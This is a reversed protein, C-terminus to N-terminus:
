YEVNEQLNRLLIHELTWNRNLFVYFNQRKNNSETRLFLSLLISRFSVIYTFCHNIHYYMEKIQKSDLNVCESFVLKKIFHKLFRHCVNRESITSFDIDSMKRCIGAYSINM